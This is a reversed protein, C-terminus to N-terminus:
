IGRMRGVVGRRRRLRSRRMRREVVAHRRTRHQIVGRRRWRLISHRLLLVVDLGRRLRQRGLRRLVYIRIAGALRWRVGVLRMLLLLPMLDFYDLTRARRQVGAEPGLRRGPMRRDIM